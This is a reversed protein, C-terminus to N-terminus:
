IKGGNKVFGIIGKLIEVFVILLFFGVVRRYIIVNNFLLIYFDRLIDDIFFCYENKIKIDLFNMFM